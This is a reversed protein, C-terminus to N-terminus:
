RLLPSKGHLSKQETAVLHEVHQRAPGKRGTLGLILRDLMVQPGAVLAAAQGLSQPRGDGQHM